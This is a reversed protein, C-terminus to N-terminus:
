RLEFWSLPKVRVGDRAVTLEVVKHAGMPGFAEARVAVIGAGPNSGAGDRTPDNDNEGPDDATMAVVYYPSEIVGPALLTRLRGYAFLRWRPNNAGWPRDDTVANMESTTCGTAKQCNAMNVVQELDLTSGDDLQRTGSPPGDVFPSLVGGAILETWDAIPRLDDLARAAAADAAYLAEQTRRFNMAIHTEPTTSLVLAAALASVLAMTLLVILLAVGNDRGGDM